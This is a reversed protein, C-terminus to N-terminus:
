PLAKTSQAELRFGRACLATAGVRFLGRRALIDHASALALHPEPGEEIRGAVVHRRPAMGVRLGVGADVEAVVDLQRLGGFAGLEVEHEEGDVTANPAGMDVRNRACGRGDSLMLC